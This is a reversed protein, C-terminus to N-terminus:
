SMLHTAIKGERKFRSTEATNLVIHFMLLRNTVVGYIMMFLSVGSPLHPLAARTNNARGCSPSMKM